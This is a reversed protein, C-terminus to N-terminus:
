LAGGKLIDSGLVPITQLSALLYNKDHTGAVMTGSDISMSGRVAEFCFRGILYKGKYIASTM